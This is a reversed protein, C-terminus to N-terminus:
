SPSSPLGRQEEKEPLSFGSSSPFAQAALLLCATIAASMKRDSAVPIMAAALGASLFFITEFGGILYVLGMILPGLTQGLRLVMGNLSMFAARYELPARRALLTQVIPLNM